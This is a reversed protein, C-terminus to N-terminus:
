KPLPFGIIYNRVQLIEESRKYLRPVRKGILCVVEYNITGMEKALEDVSIFEDESYGFLIVEDTRNVSQNTVDTMTQDMCIRGVISVYQNNIIVRGCNSLLRSLGDAYGVPLTAIVADEKPIYTCGYSIPTGAKQNKVSSVRTKFTMAQILQFNQMDMNPAPRLGYLSIGVRVMDLHLEPYHITGASNCCHKIPVSINIDELAKIFSKFTKYQKLTYSSDTHNDADAFHTFIGELEVNNEHALRKALTLCVELSNCGIRSMGTDVKLHIKAKKNLQNAVKIIIELDEETFVTMTINSTIATAVGYEPTYGLILIPANIGNMRLDMAEDLFAVGLYEAGNALAVKSIEVAGHGYGDAKVVAMLKTQDSLNSKFVKTNHEIADLSIEVWTDRYSATM